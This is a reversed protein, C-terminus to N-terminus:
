QVTKRALEEPTYARGNKVVLTVTVSNEIKELPDKELVVFDALKGVELSGRASFYLFRGDPSFTPDAADPQTDKKTLQVGKGGRVHRLYLDGLLSFVLRRGDPHVDLSLWTGEDTTFAVDKTPGHADEVSWPADSDIRPPDETPTALAVASIMTLAAAAVLHGNM